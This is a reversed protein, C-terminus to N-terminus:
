VVTAYVVKNKGEFDLTAVKARGRALSVLWAVLDNYTRVPSGDPLKRSPFESSYVCCPVVAFPKGARIAYQVASGAAQDPHMGLVISCDRVIKTAEDFGDVERVVLGCGGEVGSDTSNHSTANAEGEGCDDAEGAEGEHLGKETWLMTLARQRESQFTNANALAAIGVSTVSEQDACGLVESSLHEDANFFVRLHMPAQAPEGFGRTNSVAFAANRHYFGWCLRRAFRSLDLPRPDVVTSPVGNLNLLEFSLEGKGGGVDLIGSGAMLQELGFTELLWRRFVSVRCRNRVLNRRGLGRNAIRTAENHRAHIGILSSEHELKQASQQQRSLRFAEQSHEFKCADGYACAGRRSFHKCIRPVSPEELLWGFPVACMEHAWKNEIKGVADGVNIPKQCSPCTSCSRAVLPMSKRASPPSELRGLTGSEML